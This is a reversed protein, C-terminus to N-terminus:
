VAGARLKLEKVVTVFRAAIGAHKAVMSITVFRAAM